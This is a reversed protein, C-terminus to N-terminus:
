FRSGRLVCWEFFHFTIALRRVKTNKPHDANILRRVGAKLTFRNKFFTSIPSDGLDIIWCNTCM